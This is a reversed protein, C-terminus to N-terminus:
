DEESCSSTDYMTKNIERCMQSDPSFHVCDTPLGSHAMLLSDLTSTKLRNRHKTKILFVQSFLREVDANSHPLALLARVFLVVTPFKSADLVGWFEDIRNKEPDFVQLKSFSMQRWEDELTVIEEPKIINPFKSAVDVVAPCQTVSLNVPDLFHLSCLIPDNIPFRKKIQTAAEILFNQCHELFGKVEATRALIDPKALLSSVVHGLSIATLPLMHVRATPDLKDLSTSRIYANNMYCSLLSKYLVALESTLCHLNPSESQFLKNFKTFKPLVGDLFCFYMKFIPNKYASALNQAAVLRETVAQNTFFLELADWQELIRKVCMQLSLWRTQSPKLIRHPETEVFHQFKSFEALRKASHSFYSYTDRIMDEVARPLKECSHSACLHASHCLCKMAFINPIKDALITSVSHHSGFMVNTTDAAFGVINSLPIKAKEFVDLVATTIGDADASSVEILKLFHARVRRQSNCFFRVVVALQKLASIDTSEDIIISFKTSKLVEVLDNRFRQAIVHKVISRTKTRKSSFECAIKSDPFTAAVLDSLHDMIRFPLNHEVIFAAVKIEAKKVQESHPTQTLLQTIPRARRSASMNAKHKETGAHRNLESKGAVLQVGCTKCFAKYPDGKVASLWGKLDSESEWSKNYKQRYTKKPKKPTPTSLNDASRDSSSM